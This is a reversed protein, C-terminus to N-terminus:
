DIVAIYISLCNMSKFKGETKNTKKKTSPWRNCTEIIVTESPFLLLSPRRNRFAVIKNIMLSENLQTDTTWISYKVFGRPFLLLEM